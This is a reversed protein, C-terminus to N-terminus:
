VLNGPRSSINFCMAIVGWVVKMVNCDFLLHDIEKNEKCFYCTPDGVWKRKIMNDKTLIAQNELLWLFIKIKEPLKAKCIHKYNKGEERRTLHEYVSKVSFKGSKGRAM